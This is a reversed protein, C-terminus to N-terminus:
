WVYNRCHFQHEPHRTFGVKNDFPCDHGTIECGLGSVSGGKQILHVFNSCMPIEQKDLKVDPVDLANKPAIYPIHSWRGTDKVAM